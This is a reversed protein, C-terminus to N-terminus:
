FQRAPGIPRWGCITNPEGHEAREYFQASHFRTVAAVIRTYRRELEAADDCYDSLDPDGDPVRNEWYDFAFAKRSERCPM